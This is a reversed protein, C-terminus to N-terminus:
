NWKIWKFNKLELSLCVFLKGDRRDAEVIRGQPLLFNSGATLILRYNPHATPLGIQFLNLELGVFLHLHKFLIFFVNNRTCDAPHWLAEQFRNIIAHLQKYARVLMRGNSGITRLLADSRSFYVGSEAQIGIFPLSVFYM